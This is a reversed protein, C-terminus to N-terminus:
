VDREDTCTVRTIQIQSFFPEFTYPQMTHNPKREVNLCAESSCAQTQMASIRAFSPCTVALLLQSICTALVERNGSHFARRNPVPVIPCSCAFLIKHVESMMRTSKLTSTHESHNQEGHEKRCDEHACM